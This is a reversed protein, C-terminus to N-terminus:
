KFKFSRNGFWMRFRILCNVIELLIHPLWADFVFVLVVVGALGAISDPQFRAPLLYHFLLVAMAIWFVAMKSIQSDSHFFPISHPYVTTLRSHSFPKFFGETWEHPNDVLVKGLLVRNTWKFGTEIRPVITHCIFRQFGLKSKLVLGRRSRITQIHNEYIDEVIKGMEVDKKTEPDYIKNTKVNYVYRNNDNLELPQLSEASRDVAEKTPSDPQDFNYQFHNSLYEEYKSVSVYLKTADDKIINKSYGIKVLVRTDDEGDPRKIPIFGCESPYPRIVSFGEYQSDEAWRVVQEDDKQTYLDAIAM